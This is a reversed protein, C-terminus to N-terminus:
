WPLSADSNRQLLAGAGAVGAALLFAWFTGWEIAGDEQVMQYYLDPAHANVLWLCGAAAIVLTNALCMGAM